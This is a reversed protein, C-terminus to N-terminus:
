TDVTQPLGVFPYPPRTDVYNQGCLTSHPYDVTQLYPLKCNLVDLYIVMDALGRHYLEYIHYNEFINNYYLIIHFIFNNYFLGYLFM